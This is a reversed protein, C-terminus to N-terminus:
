FLPNFNIEFKFYTTVKDQHSGACQQSPHPDMTNTVATLAVLTPM